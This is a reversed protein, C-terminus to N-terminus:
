KPLYGQKHLWEALGFGGAQIHAVATKELRCLLLEAKDGDTPIALSASDTFQVASEAELIVLWCFPGIPFHPVNDIARQLREFDVSEGNAYLIYPGASFRRNETMGFSRYNTM